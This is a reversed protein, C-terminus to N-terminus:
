LQRAAASQQAYPQVHASRAATTRFFTVMFVLALARHPDGRGGRPFAAGCPKKRKMKMQRDPLRWEPTESDLGFFQDWRARRVEGSRMASLAMLRHALLAQARTGNVLKASGSLPV